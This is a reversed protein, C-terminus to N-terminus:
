DRTEYGLLLTAMCLSWKLGGDIQMVLASHVGGKHDRVLFIEPTSQSRFSRLAGISGSSRAEGGRPCLKFFKM